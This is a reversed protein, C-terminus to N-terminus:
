RKDIKQTTLTKRNRDQIQVLYMGKPLDSVAYQEGKVYEFEKMKRGVLNFILIYGSGDGEDKVSIYEAVPNPYISATPKSGSQANLAYGFMVFALLLLVRNM